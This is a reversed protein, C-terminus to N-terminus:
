ARYAWPQPIASVSLLTEGPLLLGPNVFIGEKHRFQTLIYSQMSPRSGPAKGVKAAQIRSEKLKMIGWAEMFLSIHRICHIM